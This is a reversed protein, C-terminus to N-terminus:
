KGVVWQENERVTVHQANGMDPVTSPPSKAMFIGSGPTEVHTTLNRFRELHFDKAEELGSFYSNTIETIGFFNPTLTSENKTLM